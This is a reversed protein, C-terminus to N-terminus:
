PSNSPRRRLRTNTFTIPSYPMWISALESRHIRRFRELAQEQAYLKAVHFDGLLIEHLTPRPGIRQCSIQNMEDIRAPMVVPIGIRRDVRQLGEELLSALM